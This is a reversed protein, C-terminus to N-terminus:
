GAECVMPNLASSQSQLLYDIQNSPKIAELPISKFQESDYSYEVKKITMEVYEKAPDFRLLRLKHYVPICFSLLTDKNLTEITTSQHDRETLGKGVDYYIDFEVVQPTNILFNIQLSRYRTQSYHGYICFIATLFFVGCYFPFSAGPYLYKIINNM